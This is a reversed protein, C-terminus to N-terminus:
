RGARNINDNMILNGKGKGGHVNSNHSKGHRRSEAYGSKSIKTIEGKASFQTM